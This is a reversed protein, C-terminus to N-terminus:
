GCDSFRKRPVFLNWGITKELRAIIRNIDRTRNCCNLHSLEPQQGSVLRLITNVAAAQYIVGYHGNLLYLHIAQGHFDLGDNLKYDLKENEASYVTANGEAVGHVILQVRLAYAAAQLVLTEPQAGSALIKDRIYADITLNSRQIIQEISTANIKLDFSFYVFNAM